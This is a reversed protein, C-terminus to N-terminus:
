KATTKKVTKTSTKKRTAKRKAYIEELTAPLAKIEESLQAGTNIAEKSTNNAANITRQITFSTLLICIVLVLLFLLSLSGHAVEGRLKRSHMFAEGLENISGRDMSPLEVDGLAYENEINNPLFRRILNDLPKFVRRMIATGIFAPLMVSPLRM